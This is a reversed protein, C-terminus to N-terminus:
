SNGRLQDMELSRFTSGLATLVESAAMDLDKLEKFVRDQPHGSACPKLTCSFWAYRQYASQFANNGDAKIREDRWREMLANMDLQALADHKPRRILEIQEEVAAVYRESERDLQEKEATTDDDEPLQDLERRREIDETRHAFPGEEDGELERMAGLRDQLLDVDLLAKIIDEPESREQLDLIDAELIQNIDAEPDRLARQVRARAARAKLTIAEHQFQNPVRVWAHFHREDTCRGTHGQECDEADEGVDIYDSYRFLKAVPLVAQSEELPVPQEAALQEPNDEQEPM